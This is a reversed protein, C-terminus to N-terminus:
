NNHVPRYFAFDFYGDSYPDSTKLLSNFVPHGFFFFTRRKIQHSKFVVTNVRDSKPITQIRM